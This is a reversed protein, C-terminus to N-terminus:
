GGGDTEPNIGPGTPNVDPSPSAQPTSKVKNELAMRTKALGEPHARVLIDPRRTGSRSSRFRRGYRTQSKLSSHGMIYALEHKDLVARNRDAFDNRLQLFSFKGNFEPLVHRSANATRRQANRCLQAWKGSTVSRTGIVLAFITVKTSMPLGALGLLRHAPINISRNATKLSKIRLWVGKKQSLVTEIAANMHKRFDELDDPSVAPMQALTERVRDDAQIGKDPDDLFLGAEWWEGPRLGTAWICEILMGGLFLSNNIKTPTIILDVPHSSEYLYDRLDSIQAASVPIKLPKLEKYSDIPKRLYRHVDDQDPGGPRSRRGKEGGEGAGTEQDWTPVLNLPMIDRIGRKFDDVLEPPSMSILEILDDRIEPHSYFERELQQVIAVNGLNEALALSAACDRAVQMASYHPDGGKRTVHALIDLWSLKKVLSEEEKIAQGMRLLHHLEGNPIM